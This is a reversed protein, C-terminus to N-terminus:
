SGSRRPCRPPSRMTARSGCSDRRNRARRGHARGRAAPADDPPLAHVRARDARARDGLRVDALRAGQLAARRRDRPRDRAPEVPRGLHGDRSAERAADHRCTGARLVRVARSPRAKARRPAPLEAIRGERRAVCDAAVPCRRLAAGRAHLADRRSGDAGAHVDRDRAGAAAVGRDVLAEGRSEACGSLRRRRSPARARAERQRRPDGRTRRVRLGRDGGGDLPRHRAVHRDHRCRASLPRRVGRRDRRGGCAPSARPPLLRPRELARARPRDAGGRARAVDPFAALFREYYAIVTTVQTQQLMIESLWIRYADRTGQWPLDHRGHTKQWAVLRLAFSTM